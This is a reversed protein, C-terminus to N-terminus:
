AIKGNNEEADQQTQDQLQKQEVFQKFDSMPAAFFQSYQDTWRDYIMQIPMVNFYHLRKRGSPEIILLQAKELIKIHKTIAIRSCDFRQAIEGALCGPNQNVFDLILRRHSHALAQFVEDM